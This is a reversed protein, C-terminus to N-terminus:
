NEDEKQNTKTGEKKLIFGGEVMEIEPKVYMNQGIYTGNHGGYDM